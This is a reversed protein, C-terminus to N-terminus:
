DFSLKLFWLIMKKGRKKPVVGSALKAAADAKRKAAKVVRLVEADVKDQRKKDERAIVQINHLFVFRRRNLVLNDRDRHPDDGQDFGLIEYDAEKLEGNQKLLTCLHPLVEKVKAVEKVTFPVKCQGLIRDVNCGGKTPDYQGTIKFSEIIIDKRLTTQLIYQVLQLGEVASKVHHAPMAHGVKREHERIMEKLRNTMNIEVVDSIMKINKKKTKASLFCKGADCPQTISTTSAPPKGIVINLENCKAAMEETQMPKIQTDEGDLTFYSPISDAINYIIRLKMVFEVFINNFWWRYFEENVSRTKAFVVYGNATIDTGVGLGVVPHVDIVGEEMNIDAIIYIAPATTGTANMCLYYKIFFAVLSGGKVASVKLPGGRLKQEDPDYIVCVKDTLAGGTQFSTGDANIVLNPDTLPMMLYHAAAVSVANYKNATAVDRADTSQEGYGKKLGMRDSCRGRTRRSVIQTSCAAVGAINESKMVREKQLIESFEVATTNHITASIAEKIKELEEVEFILPRGVKARLIKDKVFRSVMKPLYTRSFQYKETLIKVDVHHYLIENILWLKQEVSVDKVDVKKSFRGFPCVSRVPVCDM